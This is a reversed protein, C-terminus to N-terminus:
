STSAPRAESRAPLRLRTLTLALRVTASCRWGPQSTDSCAPATALSRDLDHEGRGVAIMNQILDARPVGIQAEDLSRIRWATQAAQDNRM